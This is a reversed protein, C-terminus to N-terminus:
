KGAAIELVTEEPMTNVASCISNYQDKGVLQKLERIILMQRKSSVHYNRKKKAWHETRRNLEDLVKKRPMNVAEFSAMVIGAADMALTQSGQQVICGQEDRYGHITTAEEDRYGRITTAGRTLSIEAAQAIPPLGAHRVKSSVEGMANVFAGASVPKGKQRRNTVVGCIIAIAFAAIIAGITAYYASYNM